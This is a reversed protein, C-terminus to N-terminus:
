GKISPLSAQTGLQPTVLKHHSNTCTGAKTHSVPLQHKPSAILLEVAHCNKYMPEGHTRRLM